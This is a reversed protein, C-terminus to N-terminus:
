TGSVWEAALWGAHPMGSALMGRQLDRLAYPVRRFTPLWGDPSRDLLLYEARAVNVYRDGRQEFPLGVSGPNIYAWGNQQLHGARHTHGGTWGLHTGHQARLTDWRLRPTAPGLEETDREPSGHFCLLDPLEVLARYASVLMRQATSLQTKSWESIDHLAREDPFGRARFSAPPELLMRDANGRVVPCGLAAIRDVCDGPWPGDMAVDGLCVLADPAQTHLDSLAATLAPLNGHLDGFIAVRM